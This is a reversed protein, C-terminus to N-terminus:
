INKIFNIIKTAELIYDPLFMNIGAEPMTRIESDNPDQVITLGGDKKILSLGKAGDNNAGSLLVGVLKDRYIDSAAEFCVDISPRSHNVPESVSLTFRGSNDFMLHYNSPALYVRGPRIIEKDLPETVSLRSNIRLAEAFGTRVNRLRHLCLVITHSFDSPIQLLLENM